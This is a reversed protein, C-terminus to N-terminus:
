SRPTLVHSVSERRRGPPERHHDRADHERESRRARRATVGRRRRPLGWRSCRGMGRSRRAAALGGGHDSGAHRVLPDRGVADLARVLQVHRGGVVAGLGVREDEPKVGQRHAVREHGAHRPERVHGRLVVEDADGGRAAEIAGGRKPVRCGHDVVVVDREEPLEEVVEFGCHADVGRPDEGNSHRVACLHRRQQRAPHGLADRRDGGDRTDLEGLRAVARWNPDDGEM